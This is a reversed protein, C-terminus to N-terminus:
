PLPVPAVSLGTPGAPIQVATTACATNSFASDGASNTARVRYCYLSAQVLGPDVYAQANVGTVTIQSFTTCGVGQCREVKFGSENDSNDTWSLSLSAPVAYVISPILFVAAVFLMIKKFYSM